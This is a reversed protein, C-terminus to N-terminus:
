LNLVQQEAKQQQVKIETPFIKDKFFLISGNSLVYTYGEKTQSQLFFTKETKPKEKPM